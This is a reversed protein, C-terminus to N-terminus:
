RLDVTEYGSYRAAPFTFDSNMFKRTYTLNSFNVTSRADNSSRIILREPMFTRDDIAIEIAKVDSGAHRPNLLVLYRGKEKRKSFFLRYDDSYGTVYLLPNADKLESAEPRSITIEKNNDNVTWMDKGDFWSKGINPTEIYSRKGDFRFAGSVSGNEGKANFKGSIGSAGKIKAVAKQMVEQPTIAYAPMVALLTALM